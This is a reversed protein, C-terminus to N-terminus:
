QELGEPSGLGAERYSNELSGRSRKTDPHGPGLARERDRLIREFLGAAEGFRGAAYYCNALSSRKRLTVLHDEGFMERCVDVNKEFLVLAEDFRKVARYAHALQHRVNVAEVPDGGQSRELSALLQELRQIKARRDGM